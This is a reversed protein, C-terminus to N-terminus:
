KKEVITEGRWKGTDDDGSNDDMVVDNKWELSL